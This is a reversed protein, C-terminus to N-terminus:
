PGSAGSGTTRHRSSTAAAICFDAVFALEDDSAPEDAWLAEALVGFVTKGILYAVQRPEDCGLAGLPGELQAWVLSEARRAASERDAALTNRNWTVARTPEAVKPDTAQSLVAAVWARIQDEPDDFARMRHEVYGALRRAGADVIAAVLDDKSKFHRYFAQNSLGAERVIEAVTPRGDLGVRVMVDTGADMLRQSEDARAAVLEATSRRAAQEALSPGEPPEAAFRM